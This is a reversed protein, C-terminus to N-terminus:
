LGLLRKTETSNMYLNLDGNAIVIMMVLLLVALSSM